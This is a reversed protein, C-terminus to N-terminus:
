PGDARRIYALADSDPEEHLADRLADLLDAERFPKVVFGVVGAELARSILEGYGYATLMVIPVNRAALIRRAAEVGDLRPMKVDLVVLDPQLDAACEVAELGDIAMGCVDYGAAELLRHLELRILTQDEAILVRTRRM